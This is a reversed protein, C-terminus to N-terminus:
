ARLSANLASNDDFDSGTGAHLQTVLWNSILQNARHCGRAKGKGKVRDVSRTFLPFSHLLCLICNNVAVEATAGEAVENWECEYAAVALRAEFRM